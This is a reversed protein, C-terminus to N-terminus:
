KIRQKAIQIIKENLKSLIKKKDQTITDLINQKLKQKFVHKFELFCSDENIRIIKFKIEQDPVLPVGQYCHMSYEWIINKKDCSVNTVKLFCEVKKNVWRLTLNTNVTNPDGEYIVEDAIFPVLKRFNSWNSIIEWLCNRNIDIVISEIQRIEVTKTNLYEHFKKIIEKQLSIEKKLSNTNISENFIIEQILLTNNDISDVFLMYTISFIQDTLSSSNCSFTIKKNDEQDIVEKSIHNLTLTHKYDTSLNTELQFSNSDTKVKIGSKLQTLAKSIENIDKVLNWVNSISHNYVYSLTEKM